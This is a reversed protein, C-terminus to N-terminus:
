YSLINHPSFGVGGGRILCQCCLEPLEGEGGLVLYSVFSMVCEIWEVSELFKAGQLMKHWLGRKVQISWVM